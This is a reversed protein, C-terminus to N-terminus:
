IYQVKRALGIPQKKLPSKKPVVEVSHVGDSPKRVAFKFGTKAGVKSFPPRQSIAIM